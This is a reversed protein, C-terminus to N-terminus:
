GGDSQPTAGEIGRDAGAAAGGAERTCGEGIFVQLGESWECVPAAGGGAVWTSVGAEGWPTSPQSGLGPPFSTAGSGGARAGGAGMGGGTNYVLAAEGAARVGDTAGDGRWWGFLLWLVRGAALGLRKQAIYLVVLCFFLFGLALLIKDTLDRRQLRALARRSAALSSVISRHEQLTDRLSKSQTDLSQLSHASRALEEAMLRRTRALASTADRASQISMRDSLGRRASAAGGVGGDGKGAETEGGLLLAAREAAQQQPRSAQVRAGLERISDLLANGEATHRQVHADAEARDAPRGLEAALGRLEDLWEAHARLRRRLAAGAPQFESLLLPRAANQEVLQVLERLVSQELETLERSANLFPQPLSATAPSM